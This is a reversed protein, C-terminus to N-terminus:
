QQVKIDNSFVYEQSTFSKPCEGWLYVTGDTYDWISISENLICINIVIYTLM